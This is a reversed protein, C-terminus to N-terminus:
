PSHAGRRLKISFTDFSHRALTRSVEERLAALDMGAYEDLGSERLKAVARELIPHFRNERGRQLNVYAAAVLIVGGLAERERGEKARWVAELAEHAEWFREDNFYGVGREIVSAEDGSSESLPRSYEIQGLSSLRREAEELDSTLFLDVEVRRNGIRVDNVRADM